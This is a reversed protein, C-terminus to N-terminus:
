NPYRLGMAHTLESTKVGTLSKTLLDAVNDKGPVHQFSIEKLGVQERLFQIKTM